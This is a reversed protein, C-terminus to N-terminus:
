MLTCYAAREPMGLDFTKRSATRLDNVEASTMEFEHTRKRLM